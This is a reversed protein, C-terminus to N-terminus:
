LGARQPHCCCLNSFGCTCSTISEGIFSSGGVIGKTISDLEFTHAIDDIVFAVNVSEIGNVM